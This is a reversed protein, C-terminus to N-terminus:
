TTGPACLHPPPASPSVVVLFQFKGVATGNSSKAHVHVMTIRHRWQSVVAIALDRHSLSLITDTPVSPTAPHKGGTMFELFASPATIEVLQSAREATHLLQISQTMM